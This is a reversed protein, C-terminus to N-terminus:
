LDKTVIFTELTLVDPSLTLPRLVVSTLSGTISYSVLIHRSTLGNLTTIDLVAGYIGNGIETLTYVKQIWGSTKFTFDDFDLFSNTTAGDRIEVDVTLGLVPGNLDIAIDIPVLQDDSEILMQKTPSVGVGGTGGFSAIVFSDIDIDALQINSNATLSVLLSGTSTIDDVNITSSGTLTITGNSAVIVDGVSIDGVSLLKLTGTSAVDIDELTIAGVAVIGSATYLDFGIDTTTGSRTDGDPDTTLVEADTAPGVGAGIAATDGSDLHFDNSAKNAFTLVTSTVNSTGPPSTASDTLNNSCNATDFTGSYDTTCDQTITNKVRTPESTGLVRVAVSINVLTCNYIYLDCGGGTGTNNSLNSFGYCSNSAPRLDYFQCDKVNVVGGSNADLTVATRGFGSTGAVTRVLCNEINIIDGASNQRMFLYNVNFATSVTDYIQLNRFTVFDDHNQLNVGSGELRYHSASYTGTDNDGEIILDFAASTTSGNISVSVSDATTGAGHWYGNDNASVFNAAENLECSSLSAYAANAGTLAPTTGDGGTSDPNFYRHLVTM